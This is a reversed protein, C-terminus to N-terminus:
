HILMITIKQITEKYEVHCLKNDEDWVLMKGDSLLTSVSSIKTNYAEYERVAESMQFQMTNIGLLIHFVYFLSMVVLFFILQLMM